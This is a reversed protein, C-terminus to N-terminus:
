SMHTFLPLPVEVAFRVAFSDNCASFKALYFNAGSLARCSSMLLWNLPLERAM